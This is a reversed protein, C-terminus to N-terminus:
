PLQFFLHPAALLLQKRCVLVLFAELALGFAKLLHNVLGFLFGGPDVLAALGGFLEDHLEFLPEAIDVDVHTAELILNVRM